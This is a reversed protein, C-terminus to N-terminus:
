SNCFIFDNSWNQQRYINNNENVSFATEEEAYLCIGVRGNKFIDVFIV